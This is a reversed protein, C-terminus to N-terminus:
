AHPERGVSGLGSGNPYRHRALHAAAMGGVGAGIVIVSQMTM